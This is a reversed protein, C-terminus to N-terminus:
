PSIVITLIAFIQNLCFSQNLRQSTLIAFGSSKPLYVVRIEQKVMFAFDNSFSCMVKYQSFTM